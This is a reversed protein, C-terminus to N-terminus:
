DAYARAWEQPIQPLVVSRLMRRLGGFTGNIKIVVFFFSLGQMRPMGIAYNQHLPSTPVTGM